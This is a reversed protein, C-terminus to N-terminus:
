MKDVMKDEKNTPRGRPAPGFDCIPLAPFVRMLLERWVYSTPQNREKALLEIEEKSIYRYTERQVLSSVKVGQLTAERLFYSYWEMPVWICPRSLMRGRTWNVEIRTRWSTGLPPLVERVEWPLPPRSPMSLYTALAHNIVDSVARDGRIAEVAAKNEKSLYVTTKSLYRKSQGRTARVKM